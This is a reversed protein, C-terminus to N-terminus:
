SLPSSRLAVVSYEDTNGRAVSVASRSRGTTPGPGAASPGTRSRQSRQSSCGPSQSPMSHLAM